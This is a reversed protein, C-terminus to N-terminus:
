SVLIEFEEWSIIKGWSSTSYCGPHDLFYPTYYGEFDLIKGPHIHEIAKAYEEPTVEDTYLVFLGLGRVRDALTNVSCFM